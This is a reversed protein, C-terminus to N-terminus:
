YSMGLNKWMIHKRHMIQKCHQQTQQM